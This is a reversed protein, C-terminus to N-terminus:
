SKSLSTIVKVPPEPRNLFALHGEGWEKSLNPAKQLHIQPGGNTVMNATKIGFQWRKRLDPFFTKVLLGLVPSRSETWTM